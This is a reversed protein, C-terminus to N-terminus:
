LKQFEFLFNIFKKIVPLASNYENESVIIKQSKMIDKIIPEVDCNKQFTYNFYFLLDVIDVDDLNPFLSNYQNNIKNIDNTFQLYQKTLIEKRTTM